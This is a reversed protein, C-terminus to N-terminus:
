GAILQLTRAAIIAETRSSVDLQTLIASVHGRVTNESLDLHRAIIKNSKGQCLEILVELQRPTLNAPSGAPSPLHTAPFCSRGTIVSKIASIIQGTSAAKSLFGMAGFSQANYMDTNNESASLIIIPTKIYRQQLLKIGQIGNIGPLQIDLLIVDLHKAELAIADNISPAELIKNPQGCSALSSQFDTLIMKLGTRFLTHDDVLLVHKAPM